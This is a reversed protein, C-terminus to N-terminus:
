LVIRWQQIWQFVKKETLLTKFSKIGLRIKLQWFAIFVKFKFRM